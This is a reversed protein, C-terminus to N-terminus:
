RAQEFGLRWGLVAPDFWSIDSMSWRTQTAAKYRGAKKANLVFACPGEGILELREAVWSQVNLPAALVVPTNTFIALDAGFSADVQRIPAPLAYAKRYREVAAKLDRVAIVVRSVGKFDKTTPKGSPFARDNRPTTDRIAFPFFTGKPEEGIQATEWELRKGDPRARGSQVPASVPIGAAKLREIEKAVDASRVAWACPGVNKEMQPAWAEKSLKQPDAGSKPAILELYSGDAFSTIAMETVGNSHPGGYECKIGVSELGSTLTKLDKGAVSVHDVTLDAAALLFPCLLCCLLFRV